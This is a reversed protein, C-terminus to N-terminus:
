SRWEVQKWATGFLGEVRILTGEIAKQLGHAFQRAHRVACVHLILRRDSWHHGSFCLEGHLRRLVVFIAFYVELKSM